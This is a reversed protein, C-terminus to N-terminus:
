QINQVAASIAAEIGRRIDSLEMFPTNERGSIGLTQERMFPVHVFGAPIDCGNLVSYMLANCVYEGADDSAEAPVGAEHMAHLMAEIPLRSSLEAPGKEAILVGQPSFGANDPIRARMINKARREPTIASRGGAQGLMVAAAPSLRSIAELALGPARMFEVPLLLKSIHAGELEGPLRSLILETPNMGDGGFPEFATVLITKMADTASTWRRSGRRLLPSTIAM